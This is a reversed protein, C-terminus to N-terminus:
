TRYTPDINRKRPGWPTSVTQTGKVIQTGGKSKSFATGDPKVWMYGTGATVSNALIKKSVLEMKLELAYPAGGAGCNCAVLEIDLGSPLSAQYLLEALERAKYGGLSTPSGHGLIILRDGKKMQSIKDLGGSVTVVQMAPKKLLNLALTVVNDSEHTRFIITAM